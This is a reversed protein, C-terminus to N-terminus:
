ARRTAHCGALGAVRRRQACGPRHRAGPLRPVIAVFGNEAYRAAIHRQSYPADTLGHLLVVAGVPPGDPELVYSRNWDQAFRGPFVPSGEFYRNLPVRDKAPLKATVKAHVEEFVAQEAVLYRDWDAEDLADAGLEGPALTHWLELPPGSQTDYIRVALLTILIAVVLLAAGKVIRLVRARVAGGGVLRPRM